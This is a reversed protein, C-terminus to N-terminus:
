CPAHSDIIGKRRLDRNWFRVWPNTMTALRLM